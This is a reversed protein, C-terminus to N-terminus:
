SNNEVKVTGIINGQRDTLSLELEVPETRTIAMSQEKMDYKLVFEARSMVQKIASAYNDTFESTDMNFEICAKM